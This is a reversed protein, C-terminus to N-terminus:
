SIKDPNCTFECTSGDKTTGCKVSAVRGEGCTQVALDVCGPCTASSTLIEGSHAEIELIGAELSFKSASAFEPNVNLVIPIGNSNAVTEGRPVKHWILMGFCNGKQDFATLRLTTKDLFNGLNSPIVFTLQFTEKSQGNSDAKVKEMFASDVMIPGRQKIAVRYDFETVRFRNDTNQANIIGFCTILFISACAIRSLKM